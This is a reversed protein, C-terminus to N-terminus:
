TRGTIDSVLNSVWVYCSATDSEIVFSLVASVPCQMFDIKHTISNCSLIKYASAVQAVSRTLAASQASRLCNVPSVHVVCDHFLHRILRDVWNCSNTHPYTRLTHEVHLSAIDTDTTGAGDASGNATWCDASMPLDRLACVAVTAICNASQQLSCHSCFTSGVQVTNVALVALKFLTLLL